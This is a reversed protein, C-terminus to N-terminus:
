GADIRGALPMWTASGHSFTRLSMAAMTGTEPSLRIIKTTGHPSVVYTPVVSM